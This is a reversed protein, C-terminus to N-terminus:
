KHTYIHIQTLKHAACAHPVWLWFLTNSGWSSFNCSHAAQYPCQSSLDSNHFFLGLEYGRLWNRPERWNLSLPAKELFVGTCCKCHSSVRQESNSLWQAQSLAGDMMMVEASLLDQLNPNKPHAEERHTTLKGQRFSYLNLLSLM